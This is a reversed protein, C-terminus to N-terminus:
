FGLATPVFIILFYIFILAAIVGIAGFFGARFGNM